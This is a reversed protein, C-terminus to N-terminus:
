MDNEFKILNACFEGMREGNMWMKKYDEPTGWLMTWSRKEFSNYFAYTRDDIKVFENEASNTPQVIIRIDTDLFKEPNELRLVGDFYIKGNHEEPFSSLFWPLSGSLKQAKKIDEFTEFNSFVEYEPPGILNKLAIASLKKNILKLFEERSMKSQDAFEYVFKDVFKTFVDRKHFNEYMPNNEKELFLPRPNVGSLIVYGAFFGSSSGVIKDVEIGNEILKELFGLSYVGRWAGGNCFVGVTKGNSLM